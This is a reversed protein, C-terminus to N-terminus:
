RLGSVAAARGIDEPLGWRKQPVLGDSYSRRIKASQCGLDHGNQYHGSTIEYVGIEEAALRTAFLSAAMSLGAKAMCYEGRNLSVM